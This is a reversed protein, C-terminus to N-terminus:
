FLAILDRCEINWLVVVASSPYEWVSGCFRVVPVPVTGNRDCMMELAM